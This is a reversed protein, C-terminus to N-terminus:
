EEYIDGLNNMDIQGNEMDKWYKKYHEIQAELKIDKNNLHRHASLIIISSMDDPHTIGKSEFWEKLLWKGMTDEESGWMNRSNRIYRGLSHHYSVLGKEPTHKFEKLQGVSDLEDIIEEIVEKLETDM